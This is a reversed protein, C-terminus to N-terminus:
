KLKVMEISKSNQRARDFNLHVLEEVPLCKNFNKFLQPACKYDSIRMRMLTVKGTIKHLEYFSTMHNQYNQGMKLANASAVFIKHKV